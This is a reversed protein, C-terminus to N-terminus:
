AKTYEQSGKDVIYPAIENLCFAPIINFKLILAHKSYIYFYNYFFNFSLFINTKVNRFTVVRIM